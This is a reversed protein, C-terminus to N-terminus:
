EKSDNSKEKIRAPVDDTTEDDVYVMSIYKVETNERTVERFKLWM